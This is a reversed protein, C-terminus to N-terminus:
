ASATFISGCIGPFSLTPSTNSPYQMEKPLIKGLPHQSETFKEPYSPFSLLCRNDVQNITLLM